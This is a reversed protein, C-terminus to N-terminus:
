LNMYRDELYRLLDRPDVATRKELNCRRHALQINGRENGGGYCFPIVHDVQVDADELDLGCLACLGRQEHWLDEVVTALWPRRRPPSLECLVSATEAVLTWLEEYANRRLRESRAHIDDIDPM